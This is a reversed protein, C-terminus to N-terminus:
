IISTNYGNCFNCEVGYYHFKVNESKKNCENCSINVTKLIDQYKIYIKVFNNNLKWNILYGELNSSKKNEIKLLGYKSIVIEDEQVDNITLPPMPMTSILQKTGNWYNKKMNDDLLLKRCLPCTIINNRFANNLCESHFTHCCNSVKTSTSQSYFTSEMCFPCINDFSNGRCDHEKENFCMNCKDCHFIEQGVRCIGCKDCHVIDKDTWICCILCFSKSFQIECNVCKNSPIQKTKCETCEISTVKRPPLIECKHELQHCRHCSSYKKCCDFYFNNCKKEYHNCVIETKKINKNRLDQIKRSKEENSLSKDRNIKKIEDVLSM